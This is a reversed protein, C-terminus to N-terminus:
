SVDFIIFRYNEYSEDNSNSIFNKCFECTKSVVGNHTQLHLIILERALEAEEEM